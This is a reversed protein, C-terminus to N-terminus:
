LDIASINLPISKMILSLNSVKADQLAFPLVQINLFSPDRLFFREILGDKLSIYMMVEGSSSEVYAYYEGDIPTGLFFPLINNIVLSRMIRLSTFIESIRINFRSFTDGEEELNIHYDYQLFFDNNERRDLPISVSRAMVGVLGYTLAIEKSVQGLLVTKKLMKKRKLIWSEFTPLEKGLLVLFEYVEDMNLFDSDVRVSSFGFRSSTLKKMIVRAKEVYNIFFESGKTFELLQCLISLDTLHNIIRELELLFLHRKKIMDPLSKKSAQLQIDLFATQYAITQSASIREVIPVAEELSLGELMKEVGRHKYFPLMEFNSIRKNKDLFHLKSSELHYPHTITTIFRENSNVLSSDDTSNLIKIGFDNSIKREFLSAAPFEKAISLLSPTEKNLSEKKIVEDYVTIVELFREREQAFRAIFRM